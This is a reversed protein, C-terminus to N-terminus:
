RRGWRALLEVVQDLAARMEDLDPYPHPAYEAYHHKGDPRLSSFGPVEDGQGLHHRATRARNLVTRVETLAQSTTTHPDYPKAATV